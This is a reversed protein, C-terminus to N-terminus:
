KLETVRKKLFARVESVAVAEGIDVQVRNYFEGLVIGIMQQDTISQTTGDPMTLSFNGSLSANISGKVANKVNDSFAINKWILLGSSRIKRLYFCRHVQTEQTLPVM